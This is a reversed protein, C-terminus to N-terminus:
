PYKIHRCLTKTITYYSHAPYGLHLAAKMINNSDVSEGVDVFVFCVSSEGCVAKRFIVLILLKNRYCSNKSGM